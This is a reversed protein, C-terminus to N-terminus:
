RIGQSRGAIMRNWQWDAPEFIKESVFRALKQQWGASNICMAGFSLDAFFTQDDPMPNRRYDYYGTEYLDIFAKWSGNLPSIDRGTINQIPASLGFCGDDASAHLAENGSNRCGAALMAALFLLSKIKM